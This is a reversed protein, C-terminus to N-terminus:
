RVKIIWNLIDAPSVSLGATDLTVWILWFGTFISLPKRWSPPIWALPNANVDEKLTKIRRSNQATLKLLANLKQHQTASPDSVLEEALDRLEDIPEFM